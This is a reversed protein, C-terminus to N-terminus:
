AYYPVGIPLGNHDLIQEGNHDYLYLGGVSRPDPNIPDGVYAPDTVINGNSDKEVGDQIDFWESM